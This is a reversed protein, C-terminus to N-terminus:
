HGDSFMLPRLFVDAAEVSEYVDSSTTYRGNTNTINKLVKMFKMLKIASSFM